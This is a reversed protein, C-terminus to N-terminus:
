KTKASMRLAAGIHEVEEDSLWEHNPVTCVTQSALEAQLCGGRYGYRRANRVCNRYLPSTDVRRHRLFQRGADCQAASEYRVPLM